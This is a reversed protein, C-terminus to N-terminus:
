GRGLADLYKGVVDRSTTSTAPPTSSERSTTSLGRAECSSTRRGRDLTTHKLIVCLSSDVVLPKVNPSFRGIIRGGRARDGRSTSASDDVITM